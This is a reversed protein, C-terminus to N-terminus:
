FEVYPGWISDHPIGLAVVERINPTPLSESWDTIPATNAM